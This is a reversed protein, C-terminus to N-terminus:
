AHEFGCCNVLLEYGLAVPLQIGAETILMLFALAPSPSFPAKPLIEKKDPALHLSRMELLIGNRVPSGLKKSCFWSSPLGINPQTKAGQM